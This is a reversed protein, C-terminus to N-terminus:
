SGSDDDSTEKPKNPNKVSVSETDGGPLNFVKYISTWGTEGYRDNAEQKLAEIARLREEQKM